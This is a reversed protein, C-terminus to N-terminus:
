NVLQWKHLPAWFLSIMNLHLFCHIRKCYSNYFNNTKKAKHEHPIMM